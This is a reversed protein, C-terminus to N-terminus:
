SGRDRNQRRIEDDTTPTLYRCFTESPLRFISVNNKCSKPAAPILYRLPSM